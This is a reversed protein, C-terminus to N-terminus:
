EEISEEREAPLSTRMCLGAVCYQIRSFPALRLKRSSTEIVMPALGNTLPRQLAMANMAEM